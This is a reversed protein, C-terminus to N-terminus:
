RGAGTLVGPLYQAQNRAFERGDLYMPVTVTVGGSRSGASPTYTASGGNPGSGEQQFRYPITIGQGFIRQLDTYTKEGAALWEDFAQQKAAIEADRMAEQAAKEAEIQKLRERQQTEVVGMVAEEAERSVSDHLSKWESDLKDITAAYKDTIADLADQHAQTLEEAAKAAANAADASKTKQDELAKTVAEVAARAQDPNNRGVGQTLAVWLKEGEAGLEGLKRHLADFGGMSQAFDEVVDRGKDRNFLGAIAKGASIAASALGLIGTTMELIGSFGGKSFGGKISDISKKATDASAILTGFGRVIEGLSGGAIQALQAFAQALADIRKKADAADQEIQKIAPGFGTEAKFGVNSIAGWDGWTVKLADIAQQIQVAAPIALQVSTTFDEIGKAGKAIEIDLAGSARVIEWLRPSLVAGQESLKAAEEAIAKVRDATLLGSESMRRFTIDLIKAQEALDKGSFKRFSADLADAWRKAAAAAADLEEKTKTVAGATGFYVDKAKQGGRSIEAQQQAMAAATGVGFKIANDAFMVFDTWSKTAQTTTDMVAAIINGSLITVKNALREWADGAEELSKITAESMKPAEDAVGRFGEKIAPLLQAASKGFLQLAVDTQTMPDEIQKVADTIALFADEPKMNRIASFQLGADQLAKVTGKDGEALKDNMKTIATGVADLTSGSQEAAFKFGQVADTSIGLQSALDHIQGATDFVHKGFAVVKDVSFAVGFAGAAATAFGKMSDLSSGAGKAAAAIKQIGPPVDQGMATLKAAAEKAQASVRALESETLKSVGGVREVAESMITADQILRTGSLSNAMKNLSTEVKGAGGEFGRLSVEAKQVAGYFSEFDAILKGTIAM